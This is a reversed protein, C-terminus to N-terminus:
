HAVSQGTRSLGRELLENLRALNLPKVLHEDFGSELARRRDEPQGYGTLAVLYTSRTESSSRLSRAVDYGNMVPLGLDVLAVDPRNARAQEVGSAGDEATIVRHGLLSLLERLMQRADANDEVVLITLGGRREDLGVRVSVRSDEYELSEPAGAVTPLRVCFESGKGRGASSAEIRGGHLEVLQRALTLGIGLGGQAREKTIEAQAFLDFIRGLAQPEIGSGTDRVKVAAREGAPDREVVVDIRGGAPTYKIANNLLNTFVQGLRIPDGVVTLPGSARRFTLELGHEAARPGADTVAGKVVEHLDLKQTLLRIKGTSMRSVDLLDDVLRTQHRVQRAAVDLSRQLVPDDPATMRMVRVTNALAGIPNRLEHGLMALFEDKAANARRLAERSQQLELTAREAAARARTESWTIGTLLVSLLLGGLLVLPVLYSQSRASFQPTPAFLLTWTRGAIVVSRSAELESGRGREGQEDSYYLREPAAGEGDYVSVGILNKRESFTNKFLERARFPSYVFGRVRRLREEIGDPLAPGSYVPVFVVFGDDGNALRVKGSATADGAATAVELTARREADAGLDYGIQHADVQPELYLVPYHTSQESEPWIRFERDGEIRTARIFDDRATADVRPVWGIGQIDPYRNSPELREVFYRFDARSLNPKLAVLAGAAHLADIYTHAREEIDRIHSTIGDEFRMRDRESVVRSVFVTGLATVSLAVVLVVLPALGSLPRSPRPPAATSSSPVIVAAPDAEKAGILGPVM